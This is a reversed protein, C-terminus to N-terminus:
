LKSFASYTNPGKRQATRLAKEAQDLLEEKFLTSGGTHCAMGINITFVISQGEKSELRNRFTSLLRECVAHGGREDTTPLVIRYIHGDGTCIDASRLQSNIATNFVSAAAQMLAPDERNPTTEMHLITLAAPYRQSRTVEYDFLVWFVDETYLDDGSAAIKKM